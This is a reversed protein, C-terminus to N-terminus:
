KAGLFRRIHRASKLQFIPKQRESDSEDEARDHAASGFLALEVAGSRKALTPKPQKLVEVVTSIAPISM